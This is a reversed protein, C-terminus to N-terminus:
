QFVVMSLCKHAIQPQKGVVTASSLYVICGLFGVINVLQVKVSFLKGFETSMVKETDFDGGPDHSLIPSKWARGQIYQIHLLAQYYGNKRFGRLFELEMWAQAKFIVQIRIIGLNKDRAWFEKLELGM